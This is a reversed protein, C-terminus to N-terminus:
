TQRGDRREYVLRVPVDHEDHELRVELPCDPPLMAAMDAPVTVQSFSQPHPDKARRHISTRLKVRQPPVGVPGGTVERRPLRPLQPSRRDAM